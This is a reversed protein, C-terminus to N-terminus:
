IIFRKALVEKFPNNIFFNILGTEFITILANKLIKRAFFRFDSLQTFFLKNNQRSKRIKCGSFVFFSCYINKLYTKDTVL